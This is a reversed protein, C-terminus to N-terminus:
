PLKKYMKSRFNLKISHVSGPYRTAARTMSGRNSVSHVSAQTGPYGPVSTSSSTTRTTSETACAPPLRSWSSTRDVLVLLARALLNLSYSHM